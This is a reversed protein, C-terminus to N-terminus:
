PILNVRQVYQVGDCGFCWGDKPAHHLATDLSETYDKLFMMSLEKTHEMSFNAFYSLSPSAMKYKMLESGLLYRWCDTFLDYNDCLFADISCGVKCRVQVGGGGQQNYELNGETKETNVGIKANDVDFGGTSWYDACEDCGMLSSFTNFESTNDSKYTDLNTCDIGVFLKHENFTLTFEQNIAIANLGPTVEVHKSWLEEGSILDFIKVDVAVQNQSWVQLEQVFVSTYRSEECEIFKGRYVAERSVSTKPYAQELRETNFFVRDFSAANHTLKPLKRLADQRLRVFSNDIVSQWLDSYSIDDSDIVGQVLETSIGPLSNVYLGSTPTTETCGKLGVLNDYCNTNM